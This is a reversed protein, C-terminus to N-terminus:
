IHPLFSSGYDCYFPQNILFDKGVKGLMRRILARREDMMSPRLQNYEWVLEKMANLEALLQPDTADHEIGALMKEKETM